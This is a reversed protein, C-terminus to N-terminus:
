VHARGIKVVKLRTGPEVAERGAAQLVSIHLFADGKGNALEVFGFGKDQKFWKVTAESQEGSPSSAPMDM